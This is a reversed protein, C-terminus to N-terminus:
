VGNRRLRGLFKVDQLEKLEVNFISAYLPALHHPGCPRSDGSARRKDLFGSLITALAEIVTKSILSAMEEGEENGPIHHLSPETDISANRVAESEEPTFYPLSIYHEDTTANLRNASAPDKTVNLLDHLLVRLKYGLDPDGIIASSTTPLIKTEKNPIKAASSADKKSRKRAM